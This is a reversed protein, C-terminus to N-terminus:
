PLKNHIFNALSDESVSRFIRFCEKLFYLAQEVSLDNEKPLHLATFMLVTVGDLLINKKDENDDRCAKVYENMDQEITNQLTKIRASRQLTIDNNM